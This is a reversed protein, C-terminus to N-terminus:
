YLLHGRMESPDSRILQYERLARELHATIKGLSNIEVVRTWVRIARSGERLPEARRTRATSSSRETACATAATRSPAPQVRVRAALASSAKSAMARWGRANSTTM